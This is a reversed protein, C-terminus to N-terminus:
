INLCSIASHSDSYEAVFLKNGSKNVCVGAPNKLSDARTMLCSSFADDEFKTVIHAGWDAVYFSNRNDSTIGNPFKLHRGDRTLQGVSNIYKGNSADFIKIVSGWSDSVLVRNKRDITLYTPSDLPSSRKDFDFLHKGEESFVSITKQQTDSIIVTGKKTIGIACPQPLLNKLKKTNGFTSISNTHPNVIKVGHDTTTIYNGSASVALRRTTIGNALEKICSGNNADFLQIRCNGRDAVALRAENEVLVLDNPCNIDGVASGEKELRWHVSHVSSRLQLMDTDSGCRYKMTEQKIPELSSKRVTCSGVTMARARPSASEVSNCMIKGFEMSLSEQIFIINTDPRHDNLMNKVASSYEHEVQELLVREHRRISELADTAAKRIRLKAENCTKEIKKMYEKENENMQRTPHEIVDIHIDKSSMSTKLKERKTMTPM